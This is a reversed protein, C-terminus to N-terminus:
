GGGIINLIKVNENESLKYTDYEKLLLQKENIWVASKKRLNLYKLLESITIDEPVEIKKNNITVEM